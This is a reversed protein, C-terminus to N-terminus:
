AQHGRSCSAAGRLMGGSSSAACLGGRVESEGGAVLEEGAGGGGGGGEVVGDLEGAPQPGAEPEGGGQGRLLLVRRPRAGPRVGGGGLLLRIGTRLTAFNEVGVVIQGAVHWHM